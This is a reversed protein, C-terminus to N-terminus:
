RTIPTYRSKKSPQEKALRPRPTTTITTFTDPTTTTPRQRLNELFRDKNSKTSPTQSPVSRETSKNEVSSTRLQSVRTRTKQPKVYQQRDEYDDAISSQLLFTIKNILKREKKM